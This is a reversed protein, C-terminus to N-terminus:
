EEAEEEDEPKKQFTVYIIPDSNHNSEVRLKITEVEENKPLPSEPFIIPMRPTKNIIGTDKMTPDDEYYFRVNVDLSLAGKLVEERVLHRILTKHNPAGIDPVPLHPLSGLIPPFNPLNKIEIFADVSEIRDKDFGGPPVLAKRKGWDRFDFNRNEVEIYAYWSAQVGTALLLTFLSLSLSKLFKM